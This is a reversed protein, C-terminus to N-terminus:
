NFCQFLHTYLLVKLLRKTIIRNLTTFEPFCLGYGVAASRSIVARFHDLSLQCQRDTITANPTILFQKLSNPRNRTKNRVIINFRSTMVVFHTSLLSVAFASLGTHKALAMSQCKIMCIMDAPPLMLLRLKLCYWEASLDIFVSLFM